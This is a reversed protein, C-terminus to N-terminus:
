WCEFRGRSSLRCVCVCGDLMLLEIMDMERGLPVMRAAGEEDWGWTEAATVRM